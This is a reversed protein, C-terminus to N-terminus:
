VPQQRAFDGSAPGTPARMDRSDVQDRLAQIRAATWSKAAAERSCGSCAICKLHVRHGCDLTAANEAAKKKCVVCFVEAAGGAAASAAAATAM